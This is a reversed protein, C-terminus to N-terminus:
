GANDVDADPLSQWSIMENPKEEIIRANWALQKGSSTRMVWHTTCDGVETVSELHDMFRPLNEFERWFAYVEEPPRNITISREIKIGEGSKLSPQYLPTCQRSSKKETLRTKMHS